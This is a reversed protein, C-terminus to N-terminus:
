EIITYNKRDVTKEKLTITLFIKDPIVERKATGTVEIYPQETIESKYDQSFVLLSNFLLVFTLIIRM